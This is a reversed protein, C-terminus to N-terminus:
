VGANCTKYCAGSFGLKRCPGFVTPEIRCVSCSLVKVVGLHLFREGREGGVDSGRHLVSPARARRFVSWSLASPGPHGRQAPEVPRTGPRYRGIEGSGYCRSGFALNGSVPRGAAMLLLPTQSGEDAFFLEVGDLEALSMTGESGTARKGLNSNRTEPRGTRLRDPPLLRRPWLRRASVDYRGRSTRDRRPMSSRPSGPLAQKTSAPPSPVRRGRGDARCSPRAQEKSSRKIEGPSPLSTGRTCPSIVNVRPDYASWRQRAM